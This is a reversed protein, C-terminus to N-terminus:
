FAGYGGTLAQYQHVTNANAGNNTAEQYQYNASAAQGGSNSCFGLLMLCSAALVISVAMKAKTREYFSRSPPSLADAM